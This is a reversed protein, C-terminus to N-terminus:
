LGINIGLNLGYWSTTLRNLTKQFSYERLTLELSFAEPILEYDMGIYPSYIIDREVLSTSASTSSFMAGVDLGFFPKFRSQPVSTLLRGGIMIPVSHLYSSARKVHVLGGNIDFSSKYEWKVYGASASIAFHPNINITGYATGGYGTNVLNGFLGLPGQVGGNVGISVQARSEAFLSLSFIIVFLLYSKKM